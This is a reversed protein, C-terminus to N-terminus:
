LPARCAWFRGPHWILHGRENASMYWGLAKCVACRIVGQNGPPGDPDPLIEAEGVVEGAEDLLPETRM